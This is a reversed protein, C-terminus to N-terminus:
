APPRISRTISGTGTAASVHVPEHAQEGQDLRPVRQRRPRVGQQLSQRGQQRPRPRRDAHPQDPSQVDADSALISSKVWEMQERGWITKDPGDPMNNPSRFDRGETLWIQLGKGWRFTRYTKEGMPVQERFVKLGKFFNLEGTLEARAIPM